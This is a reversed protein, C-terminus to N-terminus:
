EKPMQFINKQVRHSPSVEVMGTEIWECISDLVETAREKSDYTELQYTNKNGTIASFVYKDGYRGFQICFDKVPILTDFFNDQSRIFM